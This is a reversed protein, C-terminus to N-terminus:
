PKNSNFDVLEALALEDDAVIASFLKGEKSLVLRKNRDFDAWTVGDLELLRNGTNLAYQYTHSITTSNRSRLTDTAFAKAWNQMLIDNPRSKFNAHNLIRCILSLKGKTKGLTLTVNSQPILSRYFSPPYKSQVTDLPKWGDRGMVRM